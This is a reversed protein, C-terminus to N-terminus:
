KTKIKKVINNMRDSDKKIEKQTFGNFTIEWLYHAMIEAPHYYKLTNNTFGYNATEEWKLFMMSWVKKNNDINYIGYYEEGIETLALWEKDKKSYFSYPRTLYVELKNGKNDTEKYQSIEEMIEKYRDMTNKNTKPYHYKIARKIDGWKIVNAIEIINKYKYTKHKM